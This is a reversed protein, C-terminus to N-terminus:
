QPTDPSTPAPVCCLRRKLLSYVRIMFFGIGKILARGNSVFKRSHCKTKSPVCSGYVPPFYWPRKIKGSDNGIFGGEILINVGLPRNSTFVLIQREMLSKWM